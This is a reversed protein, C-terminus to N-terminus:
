DSVLHSRSRARRGAPSSSQRQLLPGPRLRGISYSGCCPRSGAARARATSIRVRASIRFASAPGATCSPKVYPPSPGFYYVDAGLNAGHNIGSLVWNADLMLHLLALPVCGAATGNIAFHEWSCHRNLRVAPGLRRGKDGRPQHARTRAVPRRSERGIAACGASRHYRRWIRLPKSCRM